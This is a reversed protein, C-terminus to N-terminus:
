DLIEIVGLGKIEQEYVRVRVSEGPLLPLDRTTALWGCFSDGASGQAEVCVIPSVANVALVETDFPTPTAEPLLSSVLFATAFGAVFTGIAIMSPASSRRASASAGQSM